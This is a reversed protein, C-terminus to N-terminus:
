CGHIVSETFSTISRALEDLPAREIPHPTRPFVVLEGNPLERAVSACAEIPTLNDRDGVGIRVPQELAALMPRTLDPAQGAQEIMNATRSVVERWPCARHRAALAAAYKPVKAEIQDADLDQLMRAASPPDWDFYTGLTHVASVRSPMHVCMYMAVYGGMSHGFVPVSELGRADLLEVVNEAMHANRQARAPAPTDGHGEFDLTLVDFTDRLRRALPELQEAAGLAAHLLLLAPKSNM